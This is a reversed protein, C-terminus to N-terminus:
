EKAKFIVKIETESNQLVEVDILSNNIYQLMECNAQWMGQLHCVVQFISGNLISITCKQETFPDLTNYVHIVTHELYSVIAEDLSSDVESSCDNVINLELGPFRWNATLLWEVTKPLQLKTLKSTQQNKQQFEEIQQFAGGVNGMQLHMSILQLQNLFDHNAFRLVEGVTLSRENM